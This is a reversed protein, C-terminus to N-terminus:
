HRYCALRITEPPNPFESEWGCFIVWGTAPNDCQADAEECFPVPTSVSVGGTSRPCEGGGSILVDGSNCDCEWPNSFPDVPPV